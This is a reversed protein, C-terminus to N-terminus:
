PPALCANSEICTGNRCELKEACEQNAAECREGAKKLPTCRQTATHCFLSTDCLNAARGCSEGPMRPKECMGSTSSPGVNCYLGSQCRTFDDKACPTGEPLAPSCTGNLCTLDAKCRPRVGPVRACSQGLAVFPTCVTGSTCQTGLQCQFDGFFDACPEGAAGVMRVATCVGTICKSRFGDPSCAQDANGVAMAEACEGGIPLKAACRGDTRRYTGPVCVDDPGYTQGPLRLAKCVGNCRKTCFSNANCDDSDRCVSGEVTNKVQFMLGCAGTVFDPNCTQNAARDSICKETAPVDLTWPERPVRCYFTGVVEYPLNSLCGEVTEYQGCRVYQLCVQKQLKECLASFSSSDPPVGADGGNGGTGPGADGTPQTVPGADAGPVVSNTSCAGLLAILLTTLIPRM